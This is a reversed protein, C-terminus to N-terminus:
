SLIDFAILADENVGASRNGSAAGGVFEKALIQNRGLLQEEGLRRITAHPHRADRRVGETSYVLYYFPPRGIRSADEGIIQVTGPSSAVRKSFFEEPIDGSACPVSMMPPRHCRFVKNSDFGFDSVDSTTEFVIQIKESMIFSVLSKGIGAKSSIPGSCISSRAFALPSSTGSFPYLTYM